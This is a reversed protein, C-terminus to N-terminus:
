FKTKLCVVMLVTGRNHDKFVDSPDKEMTLTPYNVTLENLAELSSETLRTTIRHPYVVLAILTKERQNKDTPRITLRLPWHDSGEIHEIEFDQVEEFSWANVFAYDILCIQNVIRFTQKALRDEKMCGNLCFMVQSGLNRVLSLDRASCEVKPFISNPFHAVVMLEKYLKDISNPNRKHNFEGLMLTLYGPKGISLLELDEEFLGRQIDYDYM